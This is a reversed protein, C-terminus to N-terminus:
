ESKEALAADIWLNWVKRSDLGRWLEECRYADYMGPTIDRMAEVIKRAKSMNGSSVHAKGSPVLAIREVMTM